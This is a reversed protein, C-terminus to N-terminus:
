PNIRKVGDQKLEKAVAETSGKRADTWKVEERMQM